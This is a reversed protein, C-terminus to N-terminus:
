TQTAAQSLSQSRPWRCASSAAWRGMLRITGSNAGSAPGKCNYARPSGSEGCITIVPWSEPPTMLSGSAAEARPIIGIEGSFGSDGSSLIRANASGPTAASASCIRSLFTRRTVRGCCQTSAARVGQSRAWNSRAEEPRDRVTLRKDSMPRSNSCAGPQRGARHPAASKNSALRTPRLAQAQVCCDASSAVRALRLPMSVSVKGCTLTTTSAGSCISRSSAARRCTVPAADSRSRSDIRAATAAVMGTSRTGPLM